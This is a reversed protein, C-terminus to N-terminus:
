CPNYYLVSSSKVITKWKWISKIIKKASFWTSHIRSNRGTGKRRSPKLSGKPRPITGMRYCSLARNCRRNWATTISILSSVPEITGNSLPRTTTVSWQLFRFSNERVSFKIREERGSGLRFCVGGGPIYSTQIRVHITIFSQHHSSLRKERVTPIADLIVFGPQLNV